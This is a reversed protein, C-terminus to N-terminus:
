SRYKQMERRCVAWWLNRADRDAERADPRRGCDIVATAEELTDAAAPRRVIHRTTARYRGPSVETSSVLFSRQEAGERGVPGTSYLPAVPPAPQPALFRANAWGAQSGLSVRCWRRAGPKDEDVVQGRLVHVCREVEVGAADPALEGVKAAEASPEARLNLVDTDAVGTVVMAGPVPSAHGAGALGAVAVAALVTRLM